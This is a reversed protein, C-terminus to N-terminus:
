LYLFIKFDVPVKVLIGVFVKFLVLTVFSSCETLLLDIHHIVTVSYPDKREICSVAM